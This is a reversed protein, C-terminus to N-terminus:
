VVDLLAVLYNRGYGLNGTLVSQQVEGATALLRILADAMRQSSMAFTAVSVFLHDLHITDRERVV